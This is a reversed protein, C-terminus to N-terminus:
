KGWVNFIYKHSVLIFTRDEEWVEKKGRSLLFVFVFRLFFIVLVARPIVATTTLIIFYTCLLNQISCVTFVFHLYISYIVFIVKFEASHQKEQLTCDHTNLTDSHARTLGEMKFYDLWTKAM